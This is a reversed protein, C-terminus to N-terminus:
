RGGKAKGQGKVYQPRKASPDYQAVGARDMALKMSAGGASVKALDSARVVPPLAAPARRPKAQALRAPAEEAPALYREELTAILEESRTRGNAEAAKDIAAHLADPARFTIQLSAM